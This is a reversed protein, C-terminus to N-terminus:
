LSPSWSGPGLFRAALDSLGFRLHTTCAAEGCDSISAQRLFGFFRHQPARVWGFWRPRSEEVLLRVLIEALQYSLGQIKGLQSFGDGRWFDDLGHKGWYRKHQRAMKSDLQLLSRGTMDHEFMQALGEELWQPMNLHHLAVHTLEHALTNGADALQSCQLAVHPYDERIHMGASEGQEGGPSYLSVYRYYDDRNRLAVVLQKGLGNFDVVGGLISLM